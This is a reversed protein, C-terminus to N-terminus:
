YKHLHGAHYIFVSAEKIKDRKRNKDESRKKKKRMMLMNKLVCYLRFSPFVLSPLNRSQKLDENSKM